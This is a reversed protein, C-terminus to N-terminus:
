HLRDRGVIRLIAGEVSSAEPSAPLAISIAVPPGNRFVEFRRFLSSIFDDVWLIIDLHLGAFGLIRRLVFKSEAETVECARMRDNMFANSDMGTDWRPVWFHFHDNRLSSCGHVLLMLGSLDAIL